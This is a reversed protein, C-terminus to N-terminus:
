GKYGSLKEKVSYRSKYKDKKSYTTFSIITRYSLTGDQKESMSKTYNESISSIKM